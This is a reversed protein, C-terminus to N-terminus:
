INICTETNLAICPKKIKLQTYSYAKINKDVIPVPVTELQYQILLQQTYPQIFIPFQIILNRKGDIRFTILKMDYYLHLRKIQIDYDPNTKILNQKVTTLNEKLKLPTSLSIPLYGKALIELPKPMYVYSYFFNMTFKLRNTRSQTCIYCQISQMINSVVHVMCKPTHKTCQWLRVLLYVKTHQNGVTYHM